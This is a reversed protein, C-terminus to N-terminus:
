LNPILGGRGHGAWQAVVLVSRYLGDYYDQREGDERCPWVM